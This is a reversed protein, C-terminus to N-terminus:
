DEESAATSPRRKPAKAGAAKKARVPREEGEEEEVGAVEHIPMVSLFELYDGLLRRADKAPDGGGGVIPFYVTSGSWHGGRIAEKLTTAWAGPADEETPELFKDLADQMGPKVRAKVLHPTMM